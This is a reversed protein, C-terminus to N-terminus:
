TWPNVEESEDSTNKDVLPDTDDEPLHEDMNSQQEPEEEDEAFIHDGNWVWWLCWSKWWLM